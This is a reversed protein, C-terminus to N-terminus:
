TGTILVMYLSWVGLFVLFHILLQNLSRSDLLSLYAELYMLTLYGLVLLLVQMGYVYM